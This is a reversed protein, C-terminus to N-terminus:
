WKMNYSLQYRPKKYSLIDFSVGEKNENLEKNKDTKPQSAIALLISGVLLISLIPQNKVNRDYNRKQADCAEPDDPYELTCQNYQSKRTQLEQQNALFSILSVGAVGWYIKSPKANSAQEEKELVELKKQSKTVYRGSPFRQLFLVIEKKNTTDKVVNWFLSELLWNASQAYQGEPFRQLFSEVDEINDSNKVMDWMQSEEESAVPVATPVKKEQADKRVLKEVLSDVKKYLTFIDCKRCIDDEVQKDDLRILNLGLQTIDGSKIIQFAFLREIQLLEQIKRICQEETCNPTDLEEYAQDQAEQFKEQPILQYYNSLNTRLRMSLIEKHEESIDGLSAIPVVAATQKEQAHILSAFLFITIILIITRKM